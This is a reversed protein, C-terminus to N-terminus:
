PTEPRLWKRQLQQLEGTGRISQLAQELRRLLDDRNKNVALGVPSGPDPAYLVRVAMGEKEALFEGVQFPMIAGQTKNEKLLHMAEAKTRTQMIRFRSYTGEEKWLLEIFSHRDGSVIHGYLEEKRMFRSDERVFLVDHRVTYPTSMNFMVQRFPNIEMGAICDIRHLRLHNLVTDWSDQYIMLEVGLQRTVARAVDVDFGVPQGNETFQYPPFGTAVGCILKDTRTAARATSPLGCLILMILLQFSYRMFTLRRVHPTTM